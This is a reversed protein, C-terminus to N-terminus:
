YKLKFGNDCQEHARIVCVLKNNEIFRCVQAKSYLVGCGRTDNPLFDKEAEDYNVDSWLIDCFLGKAPPERFRNILNIDSIKQLKNSLGGHVLFILNNIVAAIPFTDFLDAFAFYVEEDYKILCEKRFGYGSAMTRTEHNGRLLFVSEPYFVKLSLVLTITEISFAGRDIYDGLFIYKTHEPTGAIALIKILDYFQGHIDGLVAIPDSIELVNPESKLINHALFILKLMDVKLLIKEEILSSKIIEFNLKFSSDFLKQFIIFKKDM